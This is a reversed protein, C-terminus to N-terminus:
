LKVQEHTLFAPSIRGWLELPVERFGLNELNKEGIERGRIKPRVAVIAPLFARERVSLRRQVWFLLMLCLGGRWVWCFFALGWFGFFFGAGPWGEKWIV